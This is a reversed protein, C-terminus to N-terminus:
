RAAALLPADGRARLGALGIMELEAQTAVRQSAEGHQVLGLRRAELMEAVVEARTRTAAPAAAAPQRGEVVLTTGAAAAARAEAQVAARSVTSVFPIQPEDVIEQATAAAGALVLAAAVLAQTSFKM